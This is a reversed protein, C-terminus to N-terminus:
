WCFNANEVMFHKFDDSIQSFISYRLVRPLDNGTLDYVFIYFGIFNDRVNFNEIKYSNMIFTKLTFLLCLISEFWHAMHLFHNWQNKYTKSYLISFYRTKASKKATSIRWIALWISKQIPNMTFHLLGM